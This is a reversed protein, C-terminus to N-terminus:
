FNQLLIVNHEEVVCESKTNLQLRVITEEQAHHLILLAQVVISGLLVFKANIEVRPGQLQHM